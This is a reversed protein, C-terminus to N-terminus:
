YEPTAAHYSSIYYCLGEKTRINQFLRSSM